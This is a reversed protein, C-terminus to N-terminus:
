QLCRLGGGFERRGGVKCPGEDRKSKSPLGSRFSAKLMTSRPSRRHDIYWKRVFILTEFVPVLAQHIKHLFIPLTRCGEGWRVARAAQWHAIVLHSHQPTHSVSVVGWSFVLKFRGPVRAHHMISPRASYKTITGNPGLDLLPSDRPACPLNCSIFNFFHCYYYASVQIVIAPHGARGRDRVGVVVRCPDNLNATSFPTEWRGGM